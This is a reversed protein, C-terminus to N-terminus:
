QPILWVVYEYNPQDLLFPPLVNPLWSNEGGIGAHRHDIHVHVPLDDLPDGAASVGNFDVTFGGQRLERARKLSVGGRGGDGEDDDDDEYDDVGDSDDDTVTSKSTLLTEPLDSTHTAAALQHTHFRSVQCLPYIFPNYWPNICIPKYVM